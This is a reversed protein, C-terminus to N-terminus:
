PTDGGAVDGDGSETLPEEEGAPAPGVDVTTVLEPDVMLVPQDLPEATTPAVGDVAFEWAGLPLSARLFGSEDAEGLVYESGDCEPDSGRYLAIVQSGEDLGRFEVRAAPIPVISTQGPRLLFQAPAFEYSVPNNDLCQGLWAVFPTTAPWLGARELGVPQESLLSGTELPQWQGLVGAPVPFTTDAPELRFGAAPALEFALRSVSDADITAQQRLGDVARAVLDVGRPGGSVSVELSSSPFLVPLFVCGDSGTVVQFSNRPRFPDNGTVVVDELPDGFQGQTLVTMAGTPQGDVDLAAPIVSDIVQPSDLEQGSVEIRVRLFDTGPSVADCASAEQAVGVYNASTRITFGAQEVQSVGVPVSLGDDVRIQELWSRALNAATVRDANERVSGLASLLVAVSAATVGLFVGLAVVVEVLTFGEDRQSRQVPVPALPGSSLDGAM